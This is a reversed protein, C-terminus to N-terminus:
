VKLSHQKAVAAEAAYWCCRLSQALFPMVSRLALTDEWRRRQKRGSLLQWRQSVPNSVNWKQGSVPRYCKYFDSLLLMDPDHLLGAIRNTLYFALDPREHYDFDMALFAIDSAVDIYRFSDNFEICDYICVKGKRIHIHELHLDGHCDQIRHEQM